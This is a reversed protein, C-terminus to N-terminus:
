SGATRQTPPTSSSSRASAVPARMTGRKLSNVASFSPLAPWTRSTPKPVLLSRMITISCHGLVRARVMRMRPPELIIVSSALRQTCSARHTVRFIMRSERM